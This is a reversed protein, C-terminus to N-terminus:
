EKPKEGKKELAEKCHEVKKKVVFPGYGQNPNNAFDDQPTTRPPDFKELPVIQTVIPDPLPLCDANNM